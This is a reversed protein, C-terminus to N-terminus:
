RLPPLAEIRAVGAGVRAQAPPAIARGVYALADAGAASTVTGVVAGDIVLEEGPQLQGAARIRRLRRPVNRGRSDIRAVLEQGTYCGKTFSVAVGVVGAEEPITDATLEYGLAPIGLRVRTANWVAEWGPDAEGASAADVPGIVALGADEGADPDVTATRSGLDVITAKVRLKFRELREVLAPGFGRDLDLVFTGEESATIRVFSDVKGQPQLVLAWAAGGAPISDLDQSVQGQLFSGADPGAISVVDRLIKM